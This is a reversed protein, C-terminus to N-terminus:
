TGFKRVCFWVKWVKPFSSIQNMKPSMENESM